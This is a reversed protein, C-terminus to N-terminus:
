IGEKPLMLWLRGYQNIKRAADLGKKGIGSYLDVRKSTKIAGGRDQALVIRYTYGILKGSKSLNPLEAFLCAGIPVVKPDVALSYGATMPFSGAGLVKDNVKKFYVYTGGNHKVSGGFGLFQREMDPFQVLCSGQLQANSVERPTKVWALAGEAFNHIITSDHTISRDPNRMLPFDYGDGKAKKAELIPTYYGTVRVKDSKLDTNLRYFDFQQAFAAVNYFPVSRLTEVTEILERKSIGQLPYRPTTKRRLYEEQYDLANVLDFDFKLFPFTDPLAKILNSSLKRSLGRRAKKEAAISDIEALEEPPRFPIVTQNKPKCSCWFINLM